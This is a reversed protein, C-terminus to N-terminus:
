QTRLQHHEVFHRPCGSQFLQETCPCKSQRRLRSADATSFQRNQQRNM